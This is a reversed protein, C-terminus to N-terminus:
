NAITTNSETALETMAETTTQPEVVEESKTSEELKTTPEEYSPKTTSIITTEVPKTTSPQSSTQIITESSKTTNEVANLPNDRNEDIVINTKGYLFMQTKQAALPFDVIWIWATSKSNYTRRTTEDPMTKESIKFNAWGDTLAKTMYDIIEKKSLNTIINELIVDSVKNIESLSATKCKEILANIVQRQRAVRSIDGDKDSKRVRSFTLAQNGNLLVNDGRPFTKGNEKTLYEAVYVPVDVNVGGLIDIVKTFSDFDVIVYGDIEFKYHNEITDVLYAPGGNACAANLKAFKNFKDMYTYSDRMFSLLKITQNKTDISVVMMVDTNGKVASNARSSEKSSADSGILLINTVNKDSMKDGGQTAWRKINERFDNGTVDNIEDLIGYDEEDEVTFEESFSVTFDDEQYQIKNLKSFMFSVVFIIVALIFALISSAIILIKKRKGPEIKKFKEKIKLIASM